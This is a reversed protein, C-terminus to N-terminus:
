VEFVFDHELAEYPVHVAEVLFTYLETFYQCFAYQSMLCVSCQFYEAIQHIDSITTTAHRIKHANSQFLFFAMGPDMDNLLYSMSERIAKKKQMLKGSKIIM